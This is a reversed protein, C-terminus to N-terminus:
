GRGPVQELEAAFRNRLLAQQVDSIGAALVAAEFATTLLVLKAEQIRVMRAEIDLRGIDTLTARLRDLVTTYAGIEARLQEGAKATSYRVEKLANVKEELAKALRNFRGAVDLLAGLPDTIPEDVGYKSLLGEARELAVREAAKRRVHPAAAGHSDCVTTGRHPWRQCRKGTGHATATCREAASTVDGRWAQM